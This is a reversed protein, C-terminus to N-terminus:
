PRPKPGLSPRASLWIREEQVGTSPILFGLRDGSGSRRGKGGAAALAAGDAFSACPRGTNFGEAGAGPMRGRLASIDRSSEAAASGGM